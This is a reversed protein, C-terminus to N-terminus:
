NDKESRWQSDVTHGEEVQRPKRLLLHGRGYRPLGTRTGGRGQRGATRTQVGDGAMVVVM